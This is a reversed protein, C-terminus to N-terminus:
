EAKAAADDGAPKKTTSKAATKKAPKKAAKKAPKKAAKDTKNESAGDEDKAVEGDPDPEEYVVEATEVLWQAAKQRAIAERLMTM